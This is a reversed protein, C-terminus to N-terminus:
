FTLDLIYRSNEAQVEADRAQLDVKRKKVEVKSPTVDSAKKTATMPNVLIHKEPDTCHISSPSSSIM